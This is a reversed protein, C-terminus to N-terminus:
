IRDPKSDLSVLKSALLVGRIMQIEFFPIELLNKIKRIRSIEPNRSKKLAYEFDFLVNILLEKMVFKLSVKPIIGLTEYLGLQESKTRESFELLKINNSHWVKIFGAYLIDFGKSILDNALMQDEAYSVNKFPVSDILIKRRYAVHVDSLFRLPQTGYERVIHSNRSEFLSTAFENGLGKFTREIRQAVAPIADNRPVQNGLIAAVNMSCAEFVEVLDSAWYDGIPLADQSLFVVYESTALEALKQRTQGHSFEIKPIQWSKVQAHRKICEWTGDTSSSDIILVELEINKQNELVVLLDEIYDIGNYTPIAVSLKQM